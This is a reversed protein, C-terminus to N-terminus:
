HPAHGFVNKRNMFHNFFERSKCFGYKRFIAYIFYYLGHNEGVGSRRALLLIMLGISGAGFIAISQGLQLDAKKAAHLDVSLPEIM